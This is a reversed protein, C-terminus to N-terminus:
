HHSIIRNTEPDEVGLEKAARLEAIANLRDGKHLYLKGLSYLAKGLYLRARKLQAVENELNRLVIASDTVGARIASNIKEQVLDLIEELAKARNFRAAQNALSINQSVLADYKQSIVNYERRLSELEEREPTPPDMPRSIIDEALRNLEKELLDGRTTERHLSLQLEEVENSASELVKRAAQPVYDPNKYYMLETELGQIIEDSKHILDEGAACHGLLNEFMVGSSDANKMSDDVGLLDKLSEIKAFITKKDKAPLPTSLKPPHIFAALPIPKTKGKGRSVPRYADQYLNLLFYVIRPQLKEEGELAKQIKREILELKYSEDLLPLVRKESDIVVISDKPYRQLAREPWLLDEFPFALAEEEFAELKKLDARFAVNLKKEAEKM